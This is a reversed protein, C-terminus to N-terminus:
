NNRKIASGLEEVEFTINRCTSLPYLLFYPQRDTDPLTVWLDVHTCNAAAPPFGSVVDHVAVTSANRSQRDLDAAIVTTTCKM